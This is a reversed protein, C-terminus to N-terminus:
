QDTRSYFKVGFLPFLSHFTLDEIGGRYVPLVFKIFDKLVLNLGESLAAQAVHLNGELCGQLRIDVALLQSFLNKILFHIVFQYTLLYSQNHPFIRLLGPLEDLM